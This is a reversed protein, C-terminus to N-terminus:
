NLGGFLDEDRDSAKRLLLKKQKGHGTSV